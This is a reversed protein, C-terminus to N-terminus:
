KLPQIIILPDGSNINQGNSVYIKEIIGTTNAKLENEMKMAEIILLPEGKIIKEGVNKLIKVVKGPMKAILSGEQEDNHQNPIFGFHTNFLQDAISLSPLHSNKNLIKWNIKDSSYFNKTRGAKLYVTTIQEGHSFQVNYIGLKDQNYSLINLSIKHDFNKAYIKM